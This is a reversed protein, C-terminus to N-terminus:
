EKYRRPILNEMKNEKLYRHFVSCDKLNEWPEETNQSEDFDLWKVVFIMSTKNKKSGKHTVIKEVSWQRRDKGAINRANERNNDHNYEKIRSIHVIYEKMNTLDRVTYASEKEHFERVEMPGEWRSSLKNKPGNPPEILVLSGINLPNIEEFNEMRKKTNPTM